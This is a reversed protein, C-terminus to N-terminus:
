RLVEPVLQSLTYRLGLDTDEDCIRRGAIYLQPTSVPLRNAVAYQLINNLRVRTKRADLCAEVTAGFQQRLRARLKPEGSKGLNTLEEQNEYIWDLAQGAQEEACILARSLLCSGPHLSRDVMWNCDSDLPLLVVSLDLNRTVGEADLRDHLGKCTPCLPDVVLTAATGPVLPRIHVLARHSADAASPLKGCAAIRDRYDPIFLIYSVLPIILCLAGLGLWGLVPGVGNGGSVAPATAPTGAPADTAAAELAAARRVRVAAWLGGVFLLISAIYLGICTKCFSGLAVAAILAMVVTVLLPGLSALGLLDYLRRHAGGSSALLGAGLALFFGYVGLAFLSIPVGGWLAGRFLAAYPSNMAVRCGSAADGTAGLGPIISCHVDHLQRDLHEMYDATSIAAFVLGLLAAAIVLLLPNRAPTTMTTGLGPGPGPLAPERTPIM